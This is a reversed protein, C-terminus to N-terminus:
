KGEGIRDLWKQEIQKGYEDVYSRILARQEPYTEAPFEEDVWADEYGCFEFDEVPEPNAAGEVRAEFMGTSKQRWITFQANKHATVLRSVAPEISKCQTELM